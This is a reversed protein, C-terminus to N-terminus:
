INRLPSTQSAFLASEGVLPLALAASQIVPGGTKEHGSTKGIMEWAANVRQKWWHPHRVSKSIGYASMQIDIYDLFGDKSHAELLLEAGKRTVIYGDTGYGSINLALAENMELCTLPTIPKSCLRSAQIDALSRRLNVYLLDYKDFLPRLSDLKFRYYPVSDDELMLCFARGSQLFQELAALHSLTCGLHGRDADRGIPSFPGSKLQTLMALPIAAGNIGTFPQVELGSRKCLEAACMYRPGRSNMTIMYVAFDNQDQGHEMAQGLSVRLNLLEYSDGGIIERHKRSTRGLHIAAAEWLGISAELDILAMKYQVPWHDDFNRDAAAGAEQWLREKLLAMLCERFFEFRETKRWFYAFLESRELPTLDGANQIIIKVIILTFSFPMARAIHKIFLSLCHLAHIHGSQGSIRAFGAQIHGRPIRGPEPSSDLPDVIEILSDDYFFHSFGAMSEALELSSPRSGVNALYDSIAAAADM